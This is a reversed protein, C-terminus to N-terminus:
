GRPRAQSLGSTALVTPLREEIRRVLDPLQTAVVPPGLAFGQGAFCRLDRLRLLTMDDEVGEAVVDFGLVRALEITSAVIAASAQDTVM